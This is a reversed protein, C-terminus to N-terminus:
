NESSLKDCNELSSNLYSDEFKTCHHLILQITPNFIMNCAWIWGNIQWYQFDTDMKEPFTSAVLKFSPVPTSFKNHSQSDLHLSKFM